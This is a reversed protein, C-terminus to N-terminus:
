PETQNVLTVIWNSSRKPGEDPIIQVKGARELSCSWWWIAWGCEGSAKVLESVTAKGGREKLLALVKAHGNDKRVKIKVQRETPERKPESAFLSGATIWESKGSRHGQSYRIKVLRLAPEVAYPFELADIVTVTTYSYRGLKVFATQGVRWTPGAM